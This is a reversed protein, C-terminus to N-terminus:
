SRLWWWYVWFPSSLHARANRRSFPRQTQRHQAPRLRAPYAPVVCCRAANQAQVPVCRHWRISPHRRLPRSQCANGHNQRSRRQLPLAALFPTRAPLADPAKQRSQREPQLAAPQRLLHDRRPPLRRLLPHLQRPRVPQDTANRRLMQRSRTSSPNHARLRPRNRHAQLRRQRHLPPRLAQWDANQWKTRRILPLCASWAIAASPPM